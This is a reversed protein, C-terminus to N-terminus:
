WGSRSRSVNSTSGDTASDDGQSSRSGSRHIPTSRSCTAQESAAVLEAIDVDFGAVISPDTPNAEVFPAGGEADGGWRLPQSSQAHAAAAFLLCCLCVAARM